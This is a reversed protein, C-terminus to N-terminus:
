VVGLPDVFNVPDNGVYRYFNYDGSLFEIPDKSIFTKITPDYYRARYYYLEQSDFERSTYCYPNYTEILKEHKVIKGYSEDYIFREIIEKSDNSLAIISGQHDRHYYYTKQNKKDLLYQEDLCLNKYSEEKKYENDYVTISLPKDIMEEHTITALLEKNKDLIAVINLNDYVYYFTQNNYTKSIRRNFADYKFSYEDLLKNSNYRKYFLLQNKKNFLYLSKENTLKNIKEKLNGREDYTLTYLENQLLNYSSADYVSNNSLDNGALDYTFEDTSTKILRDLNDYKFEKENKKIVQGITNYEYNLTENATKICSVNYNEDYSIIEELGNPYVRKNIVDNVDYELKITNYLTEISTLQKKERKYVFGKELFNMYRLTNSKEDYSKIITVCNQTQNIINANSDYINKICSNSNKASLINGLSDYSYYIIEDDYIIQTLNKAKDYKFEIKSNDEQVFSNLTNDSNYTFSKEKKNPLIEKIVRDHTDYVFTTINGM